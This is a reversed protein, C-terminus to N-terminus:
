DVDQLAEEDPFLKKHLRLLEDTELLDLNEDAELEELRKQEKPTLPNKNAIKKNKKQYSEDQKKRHFNMMLVM